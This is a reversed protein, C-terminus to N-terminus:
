MCFAESIYSNSGSFSKEGADGVGLGEVELDEEVGSVGEGVSAEGIM